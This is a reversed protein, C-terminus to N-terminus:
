GSNSPAATENFSDVATGVADVSLQVDRCLAERTRRAPASRVRMPWTGSRSYAAM